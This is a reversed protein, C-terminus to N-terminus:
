CSGRVLQSDFVDAKVGTWRGELMSIRGGELDFEYKEKFIVIPEIFDVAGNASPV